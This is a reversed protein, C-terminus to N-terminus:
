EETFKIIKVLDKYRFVAEEKTLRSLVLGELEVGSIKSGPLLCKGNIIAVSRDASIIKGTITINEMAKNFKIWVAKEEAIGRLMAELETRWKKTEEILKMEKVAATLVGEAKEFDRAKRLKEAESKATTYVKKLRELKNKKEQEKKDKEKDKQDETKIAPNKEPEKTETTKEEKKDDELRVPCVFPDRRAGEEITYVKGYLENFRKIQDKSVGSAAAKKKGRRRAEAKEAFVVMLVFVFFPFLLVKFRLMKQIM